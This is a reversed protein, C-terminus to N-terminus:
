RRRCGCAHYGSFRYIEEFEITQETVTSTDYIVRVVTKLDLTAIDLDDDLKLDKLRIKTPGIPVRGPANSLQVRRLSKYVSVWQRDINAYLEYTAYARRTGPKHILDYFVLTDQRSNLLRVTGAGAGWNHRRVPGNYDISIDWGSEIVTVVSEITPTTWGPPGGLFTFTWSGDGNDVYPAESTPGHMSREARYKGLGGNYKEAAQRALNKARQLPNGLQSLLLSSNDPATSSNNISNEVSRAEVPAVSLALAALLLGPLFITQKM